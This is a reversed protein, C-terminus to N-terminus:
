PSPVRIINSSSSSSQQSPMPQVKQYQVQPAQAQRNYNTSSSSQQTTAASPVAYYNAWGVRPSWTQGYAPRNLVTTMPTPVPTAIKEAAVPGPSALLIATRQALTIPWDALALSDPDKQAQEQYLDVFTRNFVSDKVALAPYAHMAAQKAAAAPHPTAKAASMWAPLSVKSCSFMLMGCAAPLLMKLAKELCQHSM